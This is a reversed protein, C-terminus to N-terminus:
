GGAFTNFGSRRREELGQIPLEATVRTGCGPESHVMLRGGLLVARERMGSLGSSKGATDVAKPDFGIGQDEVQICLWDPDTWIRVMVDNAEAHRAANTLAEQVIRYAATEVEPPHLRRELGRHEFSVHVRTQTTYRELHWLLAPLLGLDDLMTPRLRLSLDRIRAMLDKVLHQGEGLNTRLEEEPLERSADLTLNLGTLAQGIEDHLERALHRRELEQVELLRRSLTRLQEAYEQLKKESRKRATADKFTVVAGVLKGDEWIPTSIYEVPFSTGDKRWFVEDTVWQGTGDKLSAYIPSAEAPYPSGDPRTHHVLSHQHKGIMDRVDWGTMRAAAANAFTTRGEIDLGYIGDGSAALLQENHRNSRQLSELALKYETIDQVAGISRVVRAQEDDWIPHASYRVWRTERTKTVIRLEHIFREGKLLLRVREAVLPGDDPHIISPWGGIAELEERTYGTVRTFGATISDLRVNGDPDVQCTYTFDSTLEALLRQREESHRLAGELRQQEAELRALRDRLAQIAPLEERVANPGNM